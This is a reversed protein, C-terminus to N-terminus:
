GAVAPLHQAAEGLAEMDVKVSSPNLTVEPNPCVFAPKEILKVGSIDNNEKLKGYASSCLYSFGSLGVPASKKWFVKVSLLRIIASSLKVVFRFKSRRTISAEDMPSRFSTPASAILTQGYLSKFVVDGIRGKPKGMIQGTLRAM